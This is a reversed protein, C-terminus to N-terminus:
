ARRAEMPNWSRRIRGHRFGASRPSGRVGRSRSSDSGTCTSTRPANGSSTTRPSRSATPGPSTGHGAVRTKSRGKDESGSLARGLSAQMSTTTTRRSTRQARRGPDAKNTQTWAPISSRRCTQISDGSSSRFIAKSPRSLRGRAPRRSSVSITQDVPPPGIFGGDVWACYDDRGINVFLALGDEVDAFLPSFDDLEVQEPPAASTQATLGLALLALAAVLATRRLM